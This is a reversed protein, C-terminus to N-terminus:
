QEPPPQLNMPAGAADGNEEDSETPPQMKDKAKDDKKDKMLQARGRIVPDVSYSSVLYIWKELKKEQELKDTM